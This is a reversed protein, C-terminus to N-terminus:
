GLGKMFKTTTVSLSYTQLSIVPVRLLFLYSDTGVNVVCLTQWTSPTGYGDTSCYIVLFPVRLPGVNM